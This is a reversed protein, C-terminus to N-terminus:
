GLRLPERRQPLLPGEEGRLETRLLQPLVVVEEPRRLRTRMRARLYEGGGSRCPSWVPIREERQEEITAETRGKRFKETVDHVGVPKVEKIEGGIGYQGHCNKCMEAFVKDSDVWVDGKEAM